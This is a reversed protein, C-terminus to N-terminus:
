GTDHSKDGGESERSRKSKGSSTGAADGGGDGAADAVVDAVVDAAVNTGTDTQAAADSTAPPPTTDMEDDDLSKILEQEKENTLPVKEGDEDSKPYDPLKDTAMGVNFLPINYARLIKNIQLTIVIATGIRMNNASRVTCELGTVSGTGTFLLSYKEIPESLGDIGTGTCLGNLLNLICESGTGTGAGLDISRVMASEVTTRTGACYVAVKEIPESLCVAVTSIRM